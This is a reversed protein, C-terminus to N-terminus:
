DLYDSLRGPAAAWGVETANRNADIIAPTM